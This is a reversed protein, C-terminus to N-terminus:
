AADGTSPVAAAVGPTTRTSVSSSSIRMAGGTAFHDRHDHGLTAILGQM